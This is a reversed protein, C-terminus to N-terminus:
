SKDVRLSTMSTSTAGSSMGIGLPEHFPDFTADGGPYDGLPLRVFGARPAQPLGFRCIAAVDPSIEITRLVADFTLLDSTPRVKLEKATLTVRRERYRPHRVVVVLTKIRENCRHGGFFSSSSYTNFRHEAAFVGDPGTETPAAADPKALEQDSANALVAISAGAVPTGTTEEMIRFSLRYRAFPCKADSPVATGLVALILAV